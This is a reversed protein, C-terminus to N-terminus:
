VEQGSYKNWGHYHRLEDDAIRRLIKANETAGIKKALRSYIPRFRQNKGRSM